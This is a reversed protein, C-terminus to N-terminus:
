AIGRRSAGGDALWTAARRILAAESASVLAAAEKAPWWRGGASSEGGAGDPLLALYAAVPPWLGLLWLRQGPCSGALSQLLALALKGTHAGAACVAAPLLWAGRRDRLLWINPQQPDGRFILLAVRSIQSM